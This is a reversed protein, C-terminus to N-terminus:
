YIFDPAETQLVQSLSNIIPCKPPWENMPDVRSTLLKIASLVCIATNETM